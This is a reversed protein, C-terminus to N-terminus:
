TGSEGKLKVLLLYKITPHHGTNHSLDKAVSVVRMESLNQTIIINGSNIIGNQLYKPEIQIKHRAGGDKRRWINRSYIQLIIGMWRRRIRRRIVDQPSSNPEDEATAVM